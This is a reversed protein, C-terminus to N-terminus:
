KSEKQSIKPYTKTMSLLMRDVRTKHSMPTIIQLMFTLNFIIKNFEIEFYDIPIENMM